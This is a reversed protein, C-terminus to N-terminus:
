PLSWRPTLIGEKQLIDAAIAYTTGHMSVVVNNIGQALYGGPYMGPIDVSEYSHAHTVVQHCQFRYRDYKEVLTLPPFGHFLDYDVTGGIELVVRDAWETWRRGSQELHVTGDPEIRRVHAGYAARLKAPPQLLEGLRAYYPLHLSERILRWHSGEQQRMVYLVDRGADHLETAAWDASRGGGVVLVRDGPLAEPTDYHREVVPLDEGPIGLRRLTCRQGVAYVVYRSAYQVVTGDARRASVLFGLPGPEIRFVDVPQQIASTVGFRAPVSHYYDVLDRKGILADPDLSRGCEAAWQAIPYFAFEMWHAPSLTLLNSPVFNWLGGVPERSLLLCDLATGPRFELGTEHLPLAKGGPHHLANFLDVPRVRAAVRRFDLALLTETGGALAAALPGYFHEVAASRRYWPWLGGALVAALPLGAPGGGVVLVTHFEPEGAPRTDRADLTSHM